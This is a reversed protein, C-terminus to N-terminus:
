GNRSSYLKIVIIGTARQTGIVKHGRDPQHLGVDEAAGYAGNGGIRHVLREGGEAFREFLVMVEIANPCMKERQGRIAAKGTVILKAVAQLTAVEVVESGAAVPKTAKLVM